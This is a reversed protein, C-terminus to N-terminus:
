TARPAPIWLLSKVTTGWQLAEGWVQLAVTVYFVPLVSRRLWPHGTRAPGADRRSQRQQVWMTPVVLCFLMASPAPIRVSLPHASGDSAEVVLREHQAAAHWQPRHGVYLIGGWAWLWAVAVCLLLSLATLFNLLRRKM